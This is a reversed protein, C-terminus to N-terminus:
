IKSIKKFLSLDTGLRLDVVFYKVFQFKGKM